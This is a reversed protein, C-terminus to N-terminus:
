KKKKLFTQVCRYVDDDDQLNENVFDLSNKNQSVAAIAVEKDNQMDESAHELALGNQNVAALVVTQDDQLDDSASKLSLGNQRVANQVIDTNYKLKKSSFKLSLGNQKVAALVLDKDNQQDKSAFKLNLGHQQVSALVREKSAYKLSSRDQNLAALVVENNDQLDKSAHELALGNQQVAALVLGKDNKLDNSAHVLMSGNQEVSSLVVDKDNHLEKSAYELNLAHQKVAALMLKKDNKPEKGAYQLCYDNQKFATLVVDKDNRLRESAYQLNNGKNEVTALVVDKDNTLRTSVYRLTDPHNKVAVLVLEKDDKPENGAYQVALGDQRVAALVVDKDNQLDKSAYELTFGNQKVAAMVVDKDNQLDKSGYKLTFGNQNVAAMVVDKDNQLDKSAYELMLGNQKVAAMVVDKDNQLDKSAYELMLGNQKVAALAVDKDNQLDKSTDKLTWGNQKAAALVVDKDNQLDANAYNLAMFNHSVAVLVLEKDNKTDKGAYQLFEGKKKVAALVVESDNQLNESAHKLNSGNQKVAALVFKKDDNGVIQLTSELFYAVCGEILAEKFSELNDTGSHATTDDIWQMFDAKTLTVKEAGLVRGMQIISPYPDGLPPLKNVYETNALHLLSNILFRKNNGSDELKKSFEDLSLENDTHAANLAIDVDLMSSALNCMGAFGDQMEERTRIPSYEITLKGATENFSVSVQEKDMSMAHQLLQVQFLFRKLKGNIRCDDDLNDSLVLRLKRGKGAEAQEFMEVECAHVGLEASVRVATPLNLVTTKCNFGQLSNQCAENLLSSDDSKLFSVFTQLDNEGHKIITGMGSAIAVAPLAEVFRKHIFLIADHYSEISEADTPSGLLQLTEKLDRTANLWSRYNGPNKESHESQLPAIVRKCGETVQQQINVLKQRLLDLDRRCSQIEPDYTEGALALFREYGEMFGAMDETFHQVEKQLQTAIEARQPSMSLMKSQEETLCKQFLRNSHFYDLLRSNQQTMWAFGEDPRQFSATVPKYNRIAQIAPEYDQNVSAQRTSWEQTQDGALVYAGTIGNFNGAVLTVSVTPSDPQQFQRGALLCPKGKQRLTIAVHDNTGGDQLVFGGARNLFAPELMWDRAHKAFIIAGNPLEEPSIHKDVYVAKGSCCGESVLQGTIAPAEPVDGSYSNGGALRTVPRVQLLYLKSDKGVAFEVDVPCCLMGELKDMAEKLQTLVLPPLQKNDTDSTDMQEIQEIYGNGDASKTLIYQSAISGEIWQDQGEGGRPLSYRHPTIGADGAVIGKPQGPGYEVQIADDQLSAHSIVVGGFQSNICTQLAIAMPQPKGQPCVEPRYGSAMVNLCTKLIPEGGQVCSDFKGAQADGYSDEKIGSSRAIIPQGPCKETLEHSLREIEKAKPLHRIAKHYEDSTILAQLGELCKKQKEKDSPSVTPLNGIEVEIDSLSMASRHNTLLAPVHCEVLDISVPHEKISKLDSFEITKFPPVPLGTKQMNRLFMGKGGFRERESEETFKAKKPPSVATSATDYRRKSLKAAKTIVEKGEPSSVFASLDLDFGARRTIAEKEEPSCLSYDEDSIVRIIRERINKDQCQDLVDTLQRHCAELKSGLEKVLLEPLALQAKATRGRFAGIDAKKSLELAQDYVDLFQKVQQAQM